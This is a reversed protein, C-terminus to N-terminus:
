GHYYSSSTVISLIPSLLVCYAYSTILCLSHGPRSYMLSHSKCTWQRCIISDMPVVKRGLSLATTLFHFQEELAPTPSVRPVNPWHYYKLLSTNASNLTHLTEHMLVEVVLWGVFFSFIRFFMKGLFYMFM